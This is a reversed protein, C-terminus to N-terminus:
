LCTTSLALNLSIPKGIQQKLAPCPHSPWRECLGHCTSNHGDMMEARLSMRTPMNFVDWPALVDGPLKVATANRCRDESEDRSQTGPDQLLDEPWSTAPDPTKNGQYTYCFTRWGWHVRQPKNQTESLLQPPHCHTHRPMVAGALHQLM